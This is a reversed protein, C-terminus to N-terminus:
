GKVSRFLFLFEWGLWPRSYNGATGGKNPLLREQPRKVAPRRVISGLTFNMRKRPPNGDPRSETM